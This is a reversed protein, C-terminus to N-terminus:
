TKCVAQEGTEMQWFFVFVLKLYLIAARMVSEYLFAARLTNIVNISEDSIITFPISIRNFSCDLGFTLLTKLTNYHTM